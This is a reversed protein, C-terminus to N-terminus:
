IFWTSDGAEPRLAHGPLREASGDFVFGNADAIQLPEMGPKREGRGLPLKGPM